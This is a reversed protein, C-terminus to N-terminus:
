GSLAILGRAHESIWSSQVRPQGQYQGEQYAKSVLCTLNRYGIENQCLLVLSSSLEPADPEHCPLEAGIIPKIGQEVAATYVKVAAFLNCFDTVAVANMGKEAIAKMLPNIRVLGDVISFETHVRLHTFRPQM